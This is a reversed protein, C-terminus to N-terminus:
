LCKLDKTIPDIKDAYDPGIALCTKTKVGGFETLGEDEIMYCGLGASKANDAIQLLEQESDCGLVIKTFKGNFMWEKEVDFFHEDITTNPPQEESLQEIIFKMSAHSAQACMKGKRMNLDKRIVIVQKIKNDEM